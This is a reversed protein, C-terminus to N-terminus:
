IFLDRLHYHACPNWLPGAFLFASIGRSSRRRPLPAKPGLGKSIRRSAIEPSAPPLIPAESDVARGDHSSSAPRHLQDHPCLACLRCDANYKKAIRRSLTRQEAPHAENGRPLAMLGREQKRRGATQSGAYKGCCATGPGVRSRAVM